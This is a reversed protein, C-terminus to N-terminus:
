PEDVGHRQAILLIARDLPAPAGCAREALREGRVIVEFGADIHDPGRRNARAPPATRLGVLEKLVPTLGVGSDLREAPPRARCTELRRIVQDLMMALRSAREGMPLRRALPDSSAVLGTLTRLERTRDTDRELANLYRRTRTYDSLEFTAEVAGALAAQDRPDGRLLRAFHDAARRADGAALLMRGAWLQAERDDPLTAELALLESLARDREGAQLLFEIFETRVRRATAREEPKWLGIIATEYYRRVAARDGRRVELRALQLNTEPDEPGHERLRLLLQRAAEDQQAATLAHALALGYRTDDPDKAVARRLASVAPDLDGRELSRNGTTYWARADDRRLAENASAFRRTTFFALVAIAALVILIAIERHV